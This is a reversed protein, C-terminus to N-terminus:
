EFVQELIYEPFVHLVAWGEDHFRTPPCNYLCSLEYAKGAYRYIEETTLKKGIIEAYAAVTYEHDTVSELKIGLVRVKEELATLRQVLEAVQESVKVMENVESSDTMTDGERRELIIREQEVLMRANRFIKEALELTSRNEDDSSDDEPNEDHLNEDHLNEDDLNEENQSSEVHLNEDCSNEEHPNEENQSSQSSAILKEVFSASLLYDASPRGGQESQKSALSTYDKGEEAYVNGTINQRAWRKYNGPSLGLWEYLKRATTLESTDVELGGKLPTPGRSMTIEKM